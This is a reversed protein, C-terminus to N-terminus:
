SGRSRRWDAHLAGPCDRFEEDGRKGSWRERGFIHQIQIQMAARKFRHQSIFIAFLVGITPARM